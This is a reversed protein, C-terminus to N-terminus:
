SKGKTNITAKLTGPSGAIATAATKKSIIVLNGAAEIERVASVSHSTVTYQLQPLFRALLRGGSDRAEKPETVTFRDGIEVTM